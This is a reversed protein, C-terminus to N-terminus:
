ETLIKIEDGVYVSHECQSVFGKEKEVLQNYQMLIGEKELSSLAISVKFRDFEKLLWRKAFPLGHCEESIFKLIKRADANRTPKVRVINYIESPKGDAVLGIGNTAFPEIAIFCNRVESNDKNDYNPISPTDHITYIDLGHGSLNRIPSFGYKQITEQIVKGLEYVKVKNKIEKIANKLAEESAKILQKNEGLDITCATDGIAGNVHVGLDLKVVDGEQFILTDNCLANYHAAIENRSLQPPFAFSGGLSIIKNEIKETVELLSANVKILTKGYERAEAAIRGSRIWDKM